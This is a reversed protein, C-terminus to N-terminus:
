KCRVRVLARVRDLFSGGGTKKTKSAVAALANRAVPAGKRSILSPQERARATERQLTEWEERKLPKTGQLDEPPVWSSTGSSENIYYFQGTYQDDYVKRWGRPLLAGTATTM